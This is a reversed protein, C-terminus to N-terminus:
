SPSSSTPMADSPRRSSVAALALLAAGTGILWLSKALLSVGLFYYLLILFAAVGILSLWGLWSDRRARAVVMLGLSAALGPSGAWSVAFLVLVFGIFVPLGPVGQPRCLMWALASLFLPVLVQAMIRSQHLFSEDLWRAEPVSLIVLSGLLAPVSGMTAPRWFPSPCRGSLGLFLCVLLGTLTLLITASSEAEFATILSWGVLIQISLFRQVRNRSLWYVLPCLIVLAILGVFMDDFPTSREFTEIIGFLFLITGALSWALSFQELFIGKELRLIAISAAVILLGIIIAPTEERIIDDLMMLLFGTLFLSALWAGLGLAFRAIWPTSSEKRDLELLTKAEELSSLSGDRNLEQLTMM